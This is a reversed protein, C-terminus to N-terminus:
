SRKILERFRSKDVVGCSSLNLIKLATKEDKVKIAKLTEPDICKQFPYKSPKPKALPLYCEFNFNKRGINWVSYGAPFTEVVEFTHTSHMTKSTLTTM